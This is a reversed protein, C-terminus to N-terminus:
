LKMCTKSIGLPQNKNMSKPWNANKAARLIPTWIWHWKRGARRFVNAKVLMPDVTGFKYVAAYLDASSKNKIINALHEIYGMAKDESTTLAGGLIVVAPKSVDIKNAYLFRRGTGEPNQKILYASSGVYNIM